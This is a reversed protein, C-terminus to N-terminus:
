LSPTASSSPPKPSTIENIPAPKWTPVNTLWITGCDFTMGMYEMAANNTRLPIGWYVAIFNTNTQPHQWLEIDPNISVWIDKKVIPMKFLDVGQAKMEKDTTLIVSELANNTKSAEVAMCCTELAGVISRLRSEANRTITGSLVDTRAKSFHLLLVCAVVLIIGSIIFKNM